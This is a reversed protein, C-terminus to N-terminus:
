ENRIDIAKVALVVDELPAIAKATAVVILQEGLPREWFGSIKKILIPDGQDLRGKIFEYLALELATVGEIVAYKSNGQDFLRQARAIVHAALSPNYKSRSIEPVQRWDDETLALRFLPRGVRMKWRGPEFKSWERGDSSWQLSFKQQFYATLSQV